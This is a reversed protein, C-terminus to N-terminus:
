LLNGTFIFLWIIFSKSHIAPWFRVKKQVFNRFCVKIRWSKQGGYMHFPREMLYSISSHITFVTFRGSIIYRMFRTHGRNALQQLTYLKPLVHGARDRVLGDEEKHVIERAARSQFLLGISPWFQTGLWFIISMIFTSRKHFCFTFWVCVHRSFSSM